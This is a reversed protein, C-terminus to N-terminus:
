LAPHDMCDDDDGDEGGHEREMALLEVAEDEVPQTWRQWFTLWAFAEPDAHLYRWLDYGLGCVLILGFILPALFETTVDKM